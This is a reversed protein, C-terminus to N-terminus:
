SLPIKINVLIGENNEHNWNMVGNIIDLRTRISNLGHGDQESNIGIGDDQYRLILHNGKEKLQITINKAQAHKITNNSLEQCIRFLQVEISENYRNKSQDTQFTCTLESMKNLQLSLSELGARLGFKQLVVPMMQHSISRIDDAAQNLQTELNELDDNTNNQKQIIQHVGSKLLTLQQGVGDHLDQAIRKREKEQANIVAEIGKKKEKLLADNKEAEKKKITNQRVLIIGLILVIALGILIWIQQNKKLIEIDQLATEKESQALKEKEFLLEKEKKETQYKKDLELLSKVRGEELLSDKLQNYKRETQFAKEYLKLQSYTKSLYQYADLEQERFSQKLSIDLAEELIPKANYANNQVLYHNGLIIQSNALEYWNQDLKFDQIVKLHLKRAESYKKLSDYAIAINSEMYPVYRNYGLEAYLRAAKGAYYITSDYDGTLLYISSMNGTTIVEGVAYDNAKYISIAKNYYNLVQDYQKLKKYIIGINVYVMPVKQFEDTYVEYIELAKFYYHLSAENDGMFDYIIGLNNYTNGIGLTDGDAQKLELSKFYYVLSSDYLSSAEYSNALTNYASALAKSNDIDQALQVAKQAFLLSSDLDISKYEWSIENYTHVLDFGNQSSSQDILSDLRNIQSSGDLIIFAMLISLFYPKM